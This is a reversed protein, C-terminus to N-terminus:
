DEPFFRRGSERIEDARDAEDRMIAAPASPTHIVQM